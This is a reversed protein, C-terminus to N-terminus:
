SSGTPSRSIPRSRGRSSSRRHELANVIGDTFKDVMQEISYRDASEACGRRLADLESENDFLRNVADAYGAATTGKPLVVSNAESLYDVEHSHYELDETVMPSETAFSEVVHLGALGPHITLEALAGIAAKDAGFRAGLVHLWPRLRSAEVLLDADDGAGIAIFAFDDRGSAVSDLVELLFPVRKWRDLASVIWGVRKGESRLTELLKVVDGSPEGSPHRFDTIDVSNQVVTIRDAPVGISEFVAKSRETYAFVWDAWRTVKSKVGEALANAELPNFNHGHGWLAVTPGGLRSAALMPYNLLLGTEQQLILLDVGRLRRLVPQATLELGKVTWLRNPVYEAWPVVKADDRKRRSAPPDGHILRVDVGRAAAADRVRNYFPLRYQPVWEMVFVATPRRHDSVSSRYDSSPQDTM